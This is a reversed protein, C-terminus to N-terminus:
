ILSNLDYHSRKTVGFYVSSVGKDFISVTEPM